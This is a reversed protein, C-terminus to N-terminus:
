KVNQPWGSGYHCAYLSHIYSVVNHSIHSPNQHFALFFLLFTNNYCLSECTISKVWGMKRINLSSKALLPVLIILLLVYIWLSHLIAATFSGPAFSPQFLPLSFILYLLKSVVSIGRHDKQQKTRLGKSMAISRANEKSRVSVEVVSLYSM